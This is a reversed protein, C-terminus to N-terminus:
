ARGERQPQRRLPAQSARPARALHARLPGMFVRDIAVRVAGHPPPGKAIGRPLQTEPTVASVLAVESGDQEFWIAQYLSVVAFGAEQFVFSRVGIPAALDFRRSGITLADAELFVPEGRAGTLFIRDVAGPTREGVRRLLRLADVARLAGEDGVSDSARRESAEIAGRTLEARRERPLGRLPVTLYSVRDRTTFAFLLREAWPEALITLGFPEQWRVLSSAGSPTRRAIGEDDVVLWASAVDRSAALAFRAVLAGVVLAAAVIGLRASLPLGLALAAGGATAVVGAAILWAGRRARDGPLAGLAFRERRRM